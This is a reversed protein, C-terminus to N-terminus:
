FDLDLDKKNSEKKKEPEAEKAATTPRTPANPPAPTNLSIATEAVLKEKEKDSHIPKGEPTYAVPEQEGEPRGEPLPIPAGLLRKSEIKLEEAKTKDTILNTIRPHIAYATGYPTNKAVSKINVMARHIEGRLARNTKLQTILQRAPLASIGHARILVPLYDHDLDIGLITYNLCCRKRREAIDASWPTDLRFECTTCDDDHISRNTLADMSACIPGVSAIEDGWRARGILIDVVVINLEDAIEDNSTNYFQGPQAGLGKAYDGGVKQLLRWEPIQMESPGYEDLRRRIEEPM